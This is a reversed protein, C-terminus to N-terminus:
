IIISDPLNKVLSKSQSTERYLAYGSIVGMVEDTVDKGGRFNTSLSTFTDRPGFPIAWWGFFLSIFSYLYGKSRRIQTSPVLFVPSKKRFTFLVVSITYIYHVFRGGKNVAAQLDAASLGEINKIKM